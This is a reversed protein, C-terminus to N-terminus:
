LQIELIKYKNNNDTEIVKRRRNEGTEYSENNTEGGTAPEYPQQLPVAFQQAVVGLVDVRQLLHRADLPHHLTVPRERRRRAGTAPAPGGGFLDPAGDQGLPDRRAGLAVRLAPPLVGRVPGGGVSEIEPSDM